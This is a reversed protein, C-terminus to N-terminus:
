DVNGVVSDELEPSSHYVVKRNKMEPALCEDCIVIELYHGGVVPDFITSGYHGYTRFMTGGMPQMGVQAVNALEKGCKICACKPFESERM